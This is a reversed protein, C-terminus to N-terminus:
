PELPGVFRNTFIDCQVFPLDSFDLFCQALGIVALEGGVSLDLPSHLLPIRPTCWAHAKSPQGPRQRVEGGFVFVDGTVVSWGCRPRVWAAVRDRKGRKDEAKGCGVPPCRRSTVTAAGSNVM